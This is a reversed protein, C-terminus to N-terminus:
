AVRILLSLPCCIDILCMFKSYMTSSYIQFSYDDHADFMGVRVFSNLVLSVMLSTVALARYIRGGIISLIRVFVEALTAESM